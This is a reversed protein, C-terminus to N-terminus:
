TRRVRLFGLIGHWPKQSQVVQVDTIEILKQFCSADADDERVMKQFMPGDILAVHNASALKKAAPTFRGSCVVVSIDAHYYAAGSVVAQVADIGVPSLHDKCQIAICKGHFHLVLDVGFDHTAPTDFIPFGREQFFSQVEYEFDEGIQMSNKSNRM